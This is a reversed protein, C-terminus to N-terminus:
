LSFFVIRERAEESDKRQKIHTLVLHASRQKVSETHQKEEDKWCYQILFIRWILHIMQFISSLRSQRTKRSIHAAIFLIPFDTRNKIKQFLPTLSM